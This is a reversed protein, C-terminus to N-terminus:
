IQISILRVTKATDCACSFYASQSFCFRTWKFQTKVSFFSQFNGRFVNVSWKTQKKTRDEVSRGQVYDVEDNSLNKHRSTKKKVQPANNDAVVTNIVDNQVIPPPMVQMEHLLNNGPVESSDVMHYEYQNPDLYNAYDWFSNSDDANSAGPSAAM